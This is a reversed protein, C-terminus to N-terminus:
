VFESHAHKPGRMCAPLFKWNRVRSAPLVDPPLPIGEQLEWDVQVALCTRCAEAAAGSELFKCAKFALTVPGAGPGCCAADLEVLEQM